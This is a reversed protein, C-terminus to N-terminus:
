MNYVDYKQRNAMVTTNKGSEVIMNWIHANNAVAKIRFSNLCITLSPTM